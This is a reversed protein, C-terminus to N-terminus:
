DLSEIEFSGNLEKLVLVVIRLASNAAHGLADVHVPVVRHSEMVLGHHVDVLVQRLGHLLEVEQEM